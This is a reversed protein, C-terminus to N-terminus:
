LSTIHCVCLGKPLPTSTVIPKVTLRLGDQAVFTSIRYPTAGGHGRSRSLTRMTTRRARHDIVSPPDCINRHMASNSNLIRHGKLLQPVEDTSLVLPELPQPQNSNM